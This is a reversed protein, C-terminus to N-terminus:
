GSALQAAAARTEPIVSGALEMTIKTVGSLDLGTNHLSPLALDIRWQAFPTPEFYAYNVEEDVRGDIEIHGFSGNEFKWDPMTGRDTSVGYEFTRQLPKSTFQYDSGAHRDLYSGLTSILVNVRESAGPQAGELWVRVCSLRVRGFGAFTQEALGVSWTASGETRLAELVAPDEIVIRKSRLTQPPPSFRALANTWDLATGTLTALGTDLGKVDEIISARVTSRDLAWYFYSARYAEISAFLSSKADIYRLYLQQMMSVIPQEGQQLEGVEAELRQQQRKSLEQQWVAQAYQQGAQIAGLQAAALAQGYIAVTDVALQLEKAYGIGEKIPGELAADAGLRYVQWDYTASLDTGAGAVNMQTLKEAYSQAGAIDKAAAAVEKSLEYVKKLVEATQKLRKMVDALEKALKAIQSGIGAAQEAAAAGEIAAGAAAAGAAGDGVFMAGIAVGFTIVATGLKLVAEAIKREEWAPIGKQEFEIQVLKAAIQAKDFMGEAAGVAAAAHEHNALAQARVKSAYESQYLQNESLTKALGIFEKTVVQQTSLQRYDSEYQSAQAVFAAALKTYVQATLYPVFAAGNAQADIQSSLLALQSASRFLLGQLEPSAGAWNKIWALQGLAIEPHEDNLLSAYIFETILAERFVDTPTTAIGQAWVLSTKTPVGGVARIQVGGTAPPAAITFTAAHPSGEQLTTAVVDFTGELEACFVVLSAVQETRYDLHFKVGAGAQIRRAYLVVVDEALWTTGAPINLVDAYVTVLPPSESAARLTQKIEALDLYMAQFTARASDITQSSAYPIAGRTAIGEYLSRWDIPGEPAPSM